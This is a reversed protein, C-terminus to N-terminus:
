KQQKEWAKWGEITNFDQGSINKLGGLAYRRITEDPHALLTIAYPALSPDRSKLLMYGAMKERKPNGSEMNTKLIEAVEPGGIQALSLAIQMQYQFGSEYYLNILPKVTSPNGIEGLAFIAPATLQRDQKKLINVMLGIAEDAKLYGLSWIAGASGQKNKRAAVEMLLPISERDGLWGLAESMGDHGSESTNKLRSRLEPIAKKFKKQGLVFAAPANITHDKKFREYVEQSITNDTMRTLIQAAAMATNQDPSSLLNCLPTIASSSDISILAKSLNSQLHTNDNELLPLLIPVSKESRISGLSIIAANKIPLPKDKM